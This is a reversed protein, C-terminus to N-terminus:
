HCQFWASDSFVYMIGMDGLNIGPVLREDFQLVFMHPVPPGRDEVEDGHGEDDGADDGEDGEGDDGDDDYDDYDDYGEEGQLWIPDDGAFSEQYLKKRTLEAASEFRLGGAKLGASQDLDAPFEPVGKKIDDETLLIVRAHNNSASYAEHSGPNSIFLALARFRQPVIVPHDKLDITLVHHMPKGERRPWTGADVGIPQGGIRNIADAAPKRRYDAKLVSYKDGVTPEPPEVPPAPPAAPSTNAAEDAAPQAARKSSKKPAPPKPTRKAATKKTAKKAATKKSAKKAAAKKAATKKSAKKAATKKAAAKKTAKKASAKKTTKKAAQEAAAQKTAKKAPTKKATM